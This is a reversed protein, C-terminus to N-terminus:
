AERPSELTSLVAKAVDIAADAECNCVILREDGIPAFVTATNEYHALVFQLKEPEPHLHAATGVLVASSLTISEIKASDALPAINERAAEDIISFNETEVILAQQIAPSSELITKALDL